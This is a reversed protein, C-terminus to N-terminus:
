HKVGDGASQPAQSFWERPLFEKLGQLTVASVLEEALLCLCFRVVEPHQDPAPCTLIAAIRVARLLASVQGFIPLGSIIRWSSRVIVRVAVDSIVSGSGSGATLSIVRDPVKDLQQKFESIAHAIFALIGCIFHSLDLEHRTAAHGHEILVKVAQEGVIDAIAETQAEVSPNTALWDTVEAVAKDILSKAEHAARPMPASGVDRAATSGGGWPASASAFPAGGHLLKDCSCRCKRVDTKAGARRGNHAM